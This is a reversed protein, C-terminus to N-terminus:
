DAGREFNDVEANHFYLEHLYDILSRSQSLQNLLFAQNM